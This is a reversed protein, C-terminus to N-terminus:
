AEVSNEEGEDIEGCATRRSTVIWDDPEYVSMIEVVDKASLMVGGVLMAVSVTISLENLACVGTDSPM